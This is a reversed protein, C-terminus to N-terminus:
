IKQNVCVYLNNDCQYQWILDDINKIRYLPKFEGLTVVSEVFQHEYSRDRQNLVRDVPSIAKYGVALPVLWGAKKRRKNWGIVKKSEDLEAVEHVQVLDLLSDMADCKNCTENDSCNLLLDRRVLRRYQQPSDDDLSYIEIETKDFVKTVDGGAWHMTPILQLVANKLELERTADIGTVDVLISVDMDIRGEPIIPPREFDKGKKKLPNATIALSNNINGKLRYAHMQYNHVIIGTGGFSVDAFGASLRIKRELAHVSGLWATMAPFGIIYNSSIANANHIELHPLLLYKKM